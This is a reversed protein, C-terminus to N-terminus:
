VVAVLRRVIQEPVVYTLNGDITLCTLKSQISWIIGDVALPVGPDLLWGRFTERDLVALPRSEFALTITNPDCRVEITGVQWGRGNRLDFEIQGTWGRQEGGGQRPQGQAGQADALEAGALRTNESAINEPATDEPATNEPATLDLLKIGVASSRLASHSVSTGGVSGDPKEDKIM